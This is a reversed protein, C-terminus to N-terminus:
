THRKWSIRCISRDIGSGARRYSDAIIIFDFHCSVTRCSNCCSLICVNRQTIICFYSYISIWSIPDLCVSFIRFDFKTITSSDFHCAISSDTNFGTCIIRVDFESLRRFYNKLSVIIITRRYPRFIGTNFKASVCFYSSDTIGYTNSPVIWLRNKARISNQSCATIISICHM